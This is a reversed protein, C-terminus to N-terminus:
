DAAEGPDPGRRLASDFGDLVGRLAARAEQTTGIPDEDMIALSMRAGALLTSLEHTTLTVSWVGSRVEEMKM